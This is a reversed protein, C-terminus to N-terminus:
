RPAAGWGLLRSMEGQTLGYKKRIEKIEEPRLMNHKKRYVAYAYVFPDHATETEMYEEGCENCKQVEYEVDVIEGRVNISESKKISKIQSQKECIPCIEKM